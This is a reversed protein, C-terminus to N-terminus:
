RRKLGYLEVQNADNVWRVGLVYDPGIDTVHLAEPLRAAGAYRGDKEFVDWTGGGGEKAIDYRQIWLRGSIDLIVDAYAPAHSPFPYDRYVEEMQRRWMTDRARVISERTYADTVERTLPQAKYKRRIIRRVQGRGDLVRIEYSDSSAVYIASDRVVVSTRAGFPHPMHLKVKENWYDADGPFVGITDLTSDAFRIFSVRARHVGPKFYDERPSEGIVYAGDSFRGFVSASQPIRSDAVRLLKGDPGFATIRRLIQDYVFITDHDRIVSTISQFEGPGRGKRGPRALHGGASDFYHIDKFGDMDNSQSSIVIRGDTLRLPIPQELILSTDGTEGGIVLSPSDLAIWSLPEGSVEPNEVIVIGASDRTGSVPRSDEVGHGCGSLAVVVILLCSPALPRIFHDM